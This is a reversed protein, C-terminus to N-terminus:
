LQREEVVKKKRKGIWGGMKESITEQRQKIDHKVQTEFAHNGQWGEKSKNLQLKLEMRISRKFDQFSPTDINPNMIKMVHMKNDWDLLFELVQGASIYTMGANTLIQDIYSHIQQKLHDPLDTKDVNHHIEILKQKWAVDINRPIYGYSGMEEMDPPPINFEEDEDEM